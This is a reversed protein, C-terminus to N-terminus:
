IRHMAPIGEACSLVNVFCVSLWDRACKNFDGWRRAIGAEPGSRAAACSFWLGGREADGRSPARPAPKGATAHCPLANRGHPGRKRPHAAQPGYAPASEQTVVKRGLPLRGAMPRIHDSPAMPAAGQTWLLAVSVGLRVRGGRGDLAHPAHAAPPPAAFGTGSRLPPCLGGGWTARRTAKQGRAPRLASAPLGARRRSPRLDARRRSRRTPRREV